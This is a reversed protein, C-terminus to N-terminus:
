RPLTLLPTAVEAPASMLKFLTSLTLFARKSSRDEDDIWFWRSRYPVAVMATNPAQGGSSVHLLPADIPLAVGLDRAGLDDAEADVGHSVYYLIDLMSRTLLTVEPVVPVTAEDPTRVIRGSVIFSRTEPPLGLNTILTQAVQSDSVGLLPGELRGLEIALEGQAQLTALGDVIRAYRSTDDAAAIVPASANGITRVTLPLLRDAPWGGQLLTFLLERPLPAALRRVFEEGALPSYTITPTETSSVGGLLGVGAIPAFSSDGNLNATANAGANRSFSYTTVVSVPELFHTPHNYRLRVLNLLMQESSSQAIAENYDARVAPLSRAGIRTACSTVLLALLLRM